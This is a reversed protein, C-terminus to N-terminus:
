GNVTITTTHRCMYLMWHSSKLSFLFSLTSILNIVKVAFLFPSGTESKGGDNESYKFLLNKGNEAIIKAYYTNRCHVVITETWACLM